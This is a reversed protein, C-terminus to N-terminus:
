EPWQYLKFSLDMLIILLVSFYIGIRKFFFFKSEFPVKAVAPWAKEDNMVKNIKDTKDELNNNPNFKSNISGINNAIWSIRSALKKINAYLFYLIFISNNEKKPM